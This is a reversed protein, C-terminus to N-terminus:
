RPIEKFNNETLPFWQCIKEGIHLKTVKNANICNKCPRRRELEAFLEEAPIESAPRNWIRAQILRGKECDCPMYENNRAKGPGNDGVWGTGACDNCKM